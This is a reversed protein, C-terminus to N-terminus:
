DWRTRILSKRSYVSFPIPFELKQASADGNESLNVSTHKPLAYNEMQRASHLSDRECPAEPCRSVNCLYQFLSDLPNDVVRTEVQVNFWGSSSKLLM